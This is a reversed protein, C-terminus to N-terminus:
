PSRKWLEALARCYRHQLFIEWEPMPATGDGLYVFEAATESPAVRFLFRNGEQVFTDGQPNLTMAPLKSLAGRREEALAPNQQYEESLVVAQGDLWNANNLRVNGYQEGGADRQVAHTMATLLALIGQRTQAAILGNIVDLLLLATTDFLVQRVSTKVFSYLKDETAEVKSLYGNIEYRDVVEREPAVGPQGTRLVLQVLKNKREERIYRCLELGATDTEMVVDIFALSLNNLGPHSADAQEFLRIAEAKSAATILNIPLGYVTFGRMALKSVALLEPDDDVLLVNFSSLFV